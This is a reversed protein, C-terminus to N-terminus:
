TVISDFGDILTLTIISAYGDILYSTQVIVWGTTITDDNSNIGSILYSAPPSYEFDDTKYTVDNVVAGTLKTVIYPTEAKISINRSLPTDYVNNRTDQIFHYLGGDNAEDDPRFVFMFPKCYRFNYNFLDDFEDYANNFNAELIRKHENVQNKIYVCNDLTGDIAITEQFEDFEYVPNMIRQSLGIWLHTIELYANDPQTISVEVSEVYISDDFNIVNFIELGEQDGFYQDGNYTIFIDCESHVKRAQIIVTDIKADGTMTFTVTGSNAPAYYTWHKGDTVKDVRYGFKGIPDATVGIREAINDWIIIPQYLIAM